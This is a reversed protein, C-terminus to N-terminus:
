RSAGTGKTALAIMTGVASIRHNAVEVPCKYLNDITKKALGQTVSRGGAGQAAGRCSSCSCGQSARGRSCRRAASCGAAGAAERLKPMPLGHVKTYEVRYNFWGEVARWMRDDTKDALEELEEPTLLFSLVGLPMYVVVDYNSDKDKSYRSLLSQFQQVMDQVPTGSFHEVNGYVNRERPCVDDVGVFAGYSRCVLPRFGYITCGGKYFACKRETEGGFQWTEDYM